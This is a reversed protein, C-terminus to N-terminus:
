RIDLSVRKRKEREEKKTKLRTGCNPCKSIEEGCSLEYKKGCSCLIIMEGKKIKDGCYDCSDVEDTEKIKSGISVELNQEDEFVKDDFIRLVRAIILANEKEPKIEVEIDKEEGAKLKEGLNFNKLEGGQIEIQLNKGLANGENILHIQTNNWENITLTDSIEVKPKPSYGELIEEVMNNAQKIKDNAGDIDKRKERDKAEQVKREITEVSAGFKKANKLSEKVDEMMDYYKKQKKLGSLEKAEEINKLAKVPNKLDILIKAKSLKELAKEINKVGDEDVEKELKFIINKLYDEHDILIGELNEMHEAAQQYKGDKYNREIKEKEEFLNLIEKSDKKFDDIISNANELFSKLDNHIHLIKSLKEVAQISIEVSKPYFGNEYAQECEKLTEKAEDIFVGEGQNEKLMKKTRSVINGAIIKQNNIKELEGESQMSLRISETHNEKNKAKKAKQIKEEAFTTDVGRSKLKEIKQNFNELISEVRKKQARRIKHELSKAKELSEEYKEEDLKKQTDELLKELGSTNAGMIKAKKLLTKIKKIKEGVIEAKGGIDELDEEIEELFILADLSKQQDLLSKVRDIQDKYDKMNFGIIESNEIFDDIYGKKDKAIQGLLEKLEDHKEELKDQAESVGIDEKMEDIKNIELNFNKIRDDVIDLNKAKLFKDELEKRRESYKSRVEINKLSDLAEDGKKIANSYNGQKFKKKAKKLIERISDGDELKGKEKLESIKSSGEYIKEYAEKRMKRNEEAESMVKISSQLSDTYDGEEMKEKAMEQEEKLHEVEVGVKEAKQMEKESEAYIKQSFESLFNKFIDLAEAYMGDKMSSKAEEIKENYSDISISDNDMKVIKALIQSNKEILKDITEIKAEEFMSEAEKLKEVGLVYSREDTKEKSEKILEGIEDKIKNHIWKFDSLNEQVQQIRDELGDKIKEKVIDKGKQAINAAEVYESSGIKREAEEKQKSFDKIDIGVEGAAQNLRDFEDILNSIKDHIESEIKHDLRELISISQDTRKEELKKEAEDILDEFDSFDENLVEKLGKVAERKNMIEKKAKELNKTLDQVKERGKRAWDLAEKYDDDKLSNRAKKLLEMPKEINAGMEKAKIFDERSEAITNLVKDFKAEEIEKFADKLRSEAKEINNKSQFQKAEKRIKKVSETSAGIEEAEKAKFTLKNFEDRLIKDGYLPNIKNEIKDIFNLAEVYEDGDTKSRANKLWKESNEVKIGQEKLQKKREELTEIKENLGNKVGKGFTEKVNEILSFTRSYDDAEFSYEAKSILERVKEKEDDAENIVRLVSKLKELEENLKKNIVRELEDQIDFAEDFAEDFKRDQFFKRSQAIKEQISELNIVGDAQQLLEEIPDFIEDYKALSRKDIEDIIEEFIDYSKEFNKKDLEGKGEEFKDELDDLDIDINLSDVIDLSEEAKEKKNKAEKKKEAAKKAKEEMEKALQRAKLYKASV